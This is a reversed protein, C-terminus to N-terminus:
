QVLPRMESRRSAALTALPRWTELDTRAKTTGPEWGTLAWASCSPKSLIKLSAPKSHRSAPQEMHKAMFGSLSFPRSIEAEEDLRLKMPRCPELSPRVRKILGAMTAAAAM